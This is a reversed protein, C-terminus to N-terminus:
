VDSTDAKGTTKAGSTKRTGRRSSTTTKRSTTRPSSSAADDTTAKDDSATATGREQQDAENQALRAVEVPDAPPDGANKPSGDANQTENITARQQAAEAEAQIQARYATVSFSVSNDTVYGSASIQVGPVTDGSLIRAAEDIIRQRADNIQGEAPDGAHDAQWQEVAADWSTEIDTITTATVPVTQITWTSM